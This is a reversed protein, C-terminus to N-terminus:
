NRNEAIRIFEIKILMKRGFFWSEIAVLSRSVSHRSQDFGRPITSIICTYNTNFYNTNLHREHDPMRLSGVPSGNHGGTRSAPRDVAAWYAMAGSTMQNMLRFRAKCTPSHMYKAIDEQQQKKGGPLEPPATLDFSSRV